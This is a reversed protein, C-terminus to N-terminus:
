AGGTYGEQRPAPLRRRGRKRVPHRGVLREWEPDPIGPVTRGLSAWTAAM